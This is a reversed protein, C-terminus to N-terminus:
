SVVHQLGLHPEGMEIPAGAGSLVGAGQTPRLAEATERRRSLRGCSPPMIGGGCSCLM